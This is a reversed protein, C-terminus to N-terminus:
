ESRLGIYHSDKIERDRLTGEYLFGMRELLRNSATNGEEALAEIRHIGKERRMYRLLAPM